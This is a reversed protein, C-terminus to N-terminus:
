TDEESNESSDTDLFENEFDEMIDDTVEDVETEIEDLVEVTGSIFLRFERVKTLITDKDEGALIIDKLEVIGDTIEEQFDNSIEAWKERMLLMLLLVGQGAGMPVQDLTLSSLWRQPLTSVPYAFTIASCGIEEIKFDVFSVIDQPKAQMVFSVYDNAKEALEKLYQYLNGILRPEWMLISSVGERQGFAAVFGFIAEEGLYALRESRDVAIDFRKRRVAELRKLQIIKIASFISVIVTVVIIETIILGLITSSFLKTTYKMTPRNGETIVNNENDIAYIRFEIIENGLWGTNIDAYYQQKSSSYELNTYNSWSDKSKRELTIAKIGSGLDNAQVWVRLLGPQTYDLEVISVTPSLIDPVIYLYSNTSNGWTLSDNNGKLDFAYVSINFSVSFSLKLLAEGQMSRLKYLKSDGSDVGSYEMIVHSYEEHLTGNEYKVELYVNSINGFDDSVTVTVNTRAEATSSAVINLNQIEPSIDDDLIEIPYIADLSFLQTIEDGSYFRSNVASANDSLSVGFELTSGYNVPIRYNAQYDPTMINSTINQVEVGEDITYNLNVVDIGYGWDTVNFRIDIFGTGTQNIFSEIIEPASYDGITTSQTISLTGNNNFDFVEFYYSIVDSFNFNALIQWHTQNFGANNVYGPQQFVLSSNLKKDYTGGTQNYFVTVNKIPTEWTGESFNAWFKFQTINVTRDLGTAIPRPSNNDSIDDIGLILIDDFWVDFYENWWERTNLFAGLELTFNESVVSDVQFSYEFTNWVEDNVVNPGVRYFVTGNPNGTSESDGVWFSKTENPHKIRCRIEQYDATADLIVPPSGGLVTYNDFAANVADFRWKFSINIMDYNNSIPFDVRWGASINFIDDNLSEDATSEGNIGFDNGNNGIRTFLSAGTGSGAFNISDNFGNTYSPYNYTDSGLVSGWINPIFVVSDNYVDITHNLLTTNDEQVAFRPVDDISPFNKKQSSLSSEEAIPLISPPILDEFVRKPDNSLIPTSRSNMAPAIGVLNITFVFGSTNILLVALIITLRTKVM